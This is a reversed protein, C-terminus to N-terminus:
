LSFRSYYLPRTSFKILVIMKTRIKKSILHGTRKIKLFYMTTGLKMKRKNQHSFLSPIMLNRSLSFFHNNSFIEAVFVTEVMLLNWIILSTIIIHKNIKFVGIFISILELLNKKIISKPNQVTKIAM